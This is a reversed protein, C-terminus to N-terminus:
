QLAGVHRSQALTRPSLGLTQHTSTKVQLRPCEDLRLGLVFRVVVMMVIQIAADTSKLVACPM